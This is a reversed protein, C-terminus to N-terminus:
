MLYDFRRELLDRQVVKASGGGDYVDHDPEVFTLVTDCILQVSPHLSEVEQMKGDLLELQQHLTPNFRDANEVTVM